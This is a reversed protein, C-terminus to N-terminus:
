GDRLRRRLVTGLNFAACAANIACLWPHGVLGVVVALTANVGIMVAQALMIDALIREAATISPAPVLNKM